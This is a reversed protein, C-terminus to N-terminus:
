VRELDIYMNLEVSLVTDCNNQVAVLYTESTPSESITPFLHFTLLTYTPTSVQQM